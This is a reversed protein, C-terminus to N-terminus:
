LSYTLRHYIIHECDDNVCYTTELVPPQIEMYLVHVRMSDFGPMDSIYDYLTKHKRFISCLEGKGEPM